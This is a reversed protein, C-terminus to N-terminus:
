LEYSLASCLKAGARLHRIPYPTSPPFLFLNLVLISRFAPQIVFLFCLYFIISEYYYYFYYYNLLQLGM